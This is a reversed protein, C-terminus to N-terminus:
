MNHFSYSFYRGTYFSTMSTFISGLKDQIAISPYQVDNGLRWHDKVYHKHKVHLKSPTQETPQGMLVVGLPPDTDEIYMLIGGVINDAWTKISEAPPRANRPKLNKPTEFVLHAAPVGTNLHINFPLPFNTYNYQCLLKGPSPIPPQQPAIPASNASVSESINEVSRAPAPTAPSQM